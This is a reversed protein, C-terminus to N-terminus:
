AAQWLLAAAAYRSAEHSWWASWAVSQSPLVGANMAMWFLYAGLAIRFSLISIAASGLRFCYSEREQVDAIVTPDLAPVNTRARTRARPAYSRPAM